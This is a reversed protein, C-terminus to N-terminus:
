NSVFKRLGAERLWVHPSELATVLVNMELPEGSGIFELGTGFRGQGLDDCYAIRAVATFHAAPLGNTWVTHFGRPIRRRRLPQESDFRAFFHNTTM